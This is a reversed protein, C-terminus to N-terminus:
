DARNWWAEDGDIEVIICDGVELELLSCLHDPAMIELTEAFVTNRVHVSSEMIAAQLGSESQEKKVICPARNFRCCKRIENLRTQGTPQM